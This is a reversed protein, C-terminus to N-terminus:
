GVNPLSPARLLGAIAAEMNAPMQPLTPAVPQQLPTAQAPPAAPPAAPAMSAAKGFGSKKRVPAPDNAPQPAPQPAVQVPAVQVPAVQPPANFVAPPKQNALPSSEQVPDARVEHVEQALMRDIQPDDMAAIVAEAQEDSLWGMATFTLLPHAVTYDFGLRTEVMFPQAGFRTLETGYKALNVLSMPPVRLLMPGGYGENTIDGSPVVAIRRGDMCAKAKKGTDNIRSGWVNQPCAACTSCQKKPSALDPHIGDFSFCDPAATDGESFRKEYFNKSIHESVGVIVVDLSPLPAGRDDFLIEEEGRHKIRWNKGKYGISAFSSTLGTQTAAAMNPLNAHSTFVSPVNGGGRFQVVNSM